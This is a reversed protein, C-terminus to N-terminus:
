WGQRYLFKSLIWDFEWDETEKSGNFVVYSHDVNISYVELQLGCVNVRHQFKVEFEEDYELDIFFDEIREATYQEVTLTRSTERIEERQSKREKRRSM